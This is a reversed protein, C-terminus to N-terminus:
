ANPFDTMLNNHMSLSLTLSNNLLYMVSHRKEQLPAVYINLIFSHIVSQGQTSTFGKASTTWNTRFTARRWWVVRRLRWKMWPIIAVAIVVVFFGSYLHFWDSSLALCFLAMPYCILVIDYPACRFGICDINMLVGKMLVSRVHKPYFM